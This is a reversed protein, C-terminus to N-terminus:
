GLLGNLLYFILYLGLIQNLTAIREGLVSYGAPPYIGAKEVSETNVGHHRSTIFVPAQFTSSHVYVGKKKPSFFLMIM